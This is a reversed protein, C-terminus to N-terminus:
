IRLSFSMRFSTFVIMAFVFPSPSFAASSKQIFASRRRYVARIPYIQYSAGSSSCFKAVRRSNILALSVLSSSSSNLFATSSSNSSSSASFGSCKATRWYRLYLSAAPFVALDIKILQPALNAGNSIASSRSSVRYSSISSSMSPSWFVAMNTMILSVSSVKLKITAIM